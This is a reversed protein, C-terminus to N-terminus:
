QRMHKLIIALPRISPRLVFDVPKVEGSKEGLGDQAKKALRNKKEVREVESGTPLNVNSSCCCVFSKNM